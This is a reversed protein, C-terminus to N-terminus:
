LARPQGGRPSIPTWPAWLPQLSSTTPTLSMSLNGTFPIPGQPDSLDTSVGFLPPWEPLPESASPVDPIIVRLGSMGQPLPRSEM